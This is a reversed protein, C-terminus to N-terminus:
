DNENWENEWYQEQELEHGMKNIKSKSSTDIRITIPHNKGKEEDKETIDKEDNIILEANCADKENNFLIQIPWTLYDDIQEQENRIINFNAGPMDSKFAMIRHKGKEKEQEKKIPIAAFKITSMGNKRLQEQHIIITANTKKPQGAETKNRELIIKIQNKRDTTGKLIVKQHSKNIAKTEPENQKFLIANEQNYTIHKEQNEKDNQQQQIRRLICGKLTLILREENINPIRSNFRLRMVREQMPGYSRIKTPIQNAILVVPVNRTKNLVEGYKADLRCEQGDLIRLMTNNFVNANESYIIEGMAGEREYNQFEDFVWLDYYDDAGAFDNMRTGVFYIRLAKRLNQFILTKQTSPPGYLLLQKTKLPRQYILNYAIWDILPYKEKIEEPSYEKIGRKEVEKQDLYRQIRKLATEKSEKILKIDQFVKKVNTYSGYMMREIIEMHKYLDLWQQCESMKQIIENVPKTNAKKKRRASEGIELIEEKKFQGWVYPEKDQKTVYAIMNAFGKHFTVNCQRGDFQKFAERIKNTANNRSANYNKIAIHIHSGENQHKEKTIVISSCQFLNRVTQLIQENTIQQRNEAHALTILIYPRLTARAIRGDNENKTQRRNLQPNIIKNGEKINKALVIQKRINEQMAKLEIETDTRKKRISELEERIEADRKQKMNREWGERFSYFEDKTTYIDEFKKM